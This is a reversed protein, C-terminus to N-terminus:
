YSAIETWAKEGVSEADLSFQYLTWHGIDRHLYHNIENGLPLGVDDIFKDRAAWPNSASIVRPAVDLFHYEHYTTSPAWGPGAVFVADVGRWPAIGCRYPKLNYPM